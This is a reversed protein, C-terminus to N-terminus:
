NLKNINKTNSCCLSDDYLDAAFIRSPRNEESSEGCIFLEPTYKATTSVFSNNNQHSNGSGTISNMINKNLNKSNSKKSQNKTSHSSGM